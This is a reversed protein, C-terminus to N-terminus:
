AAPQEYRNSSPSISENYKNGLRHNLFIGKEKKETFYYIIKIKCLATIKTVVIIPIFILKKIMQYIISPHYATDVLCVAEPTHLKM